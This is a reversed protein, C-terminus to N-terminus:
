ALMLDLEPNVDRVDAPAAEVVEWILWSAIGEGTEVVVGGRQRKRIEDLAPLTMHSEELGRESPDEFVVEPWLLIQREGEADAVVPLVVEMIDRPVEAGAEAKRVRRLRFPLGHNASSCAEEEVARPGSRDGIQQVEVSHGQLFEDHVRGTIRNGRDSTAPTGVLM